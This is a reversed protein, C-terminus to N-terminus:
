NTNKNTKKENEKEGPDKPKVKGERRRGQKNQQDIYRSKRGGGGGGRCFV